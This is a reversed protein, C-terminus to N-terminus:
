TMTNVAAKRDRDYFLIFGDFDILKISFLSHFSVPIFEIKSFSFIIRLFFFIWIVKRNTRGLFANIIFSSDGNQATVMLSFRASLQSFFTEIDNNEGGCM